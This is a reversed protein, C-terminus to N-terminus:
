TYIRVCIFDSLTSFSFVHVVCSSFSWCKCTINLDRGSSSQVSSTTHWWHLRLLLHHIEVERRKHTSQIQTFPAPSFSPTPYLLLFSLFGVWFFSAQTPLFLQMSWSGAKVTYMVSMCYINDEKKQSGVKPTAVTSWREGDWGIGLTEDKVVDGIGRLQRGRKRRGPLEMTLIKQGLYGSKRRQMHEFWRLRVERFTDLSNLRLQGESMIMELGTGGLWM